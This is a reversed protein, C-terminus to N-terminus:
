APVALPVLPDVRIEPKTAAKLLEATQYDILTKLQAPERVWVSQMPVKNSKIGGQEIGCAVHAEYGIHLAQLAREYWPRAIKHYKDAPNMFEAEFLGVARWFYEVAHPPYVGGNGAAAYDALNVLDRLILVKGLRRQPFREKDRLLLPFNRHVMKNRRIGEVLYGTHALQVADLQLAPTIDGNADGMQPQEHICGYFQIDPRRKFIRCPTDAHMPLDLQLHNQYLALGVYIESELFARLAHAGAVVEDTDIWMFWDGTAAALVENRSGSFGDTHQQVSTVDIVRVKRIGEVIAKTTDQSGTDGVLIEDAVPWISDICRLIDHEANLAIIGVTLRKRPRTTLRRHAYDRPGALAASTVYWILWHGCSSGAPSHNAWEMRHFQIDKKKGFVAILDDSCFHHVHGTRYPQDRGQFEGLPGHPCTYIVQAGHVCVQELGDVLTRCESVHEIFEGVWLGDFVRGTRAAYDEWWSSFSRTDFDWVPACIFEIRDAVGYDVAAALGADINPHSYDIATVRIEPYAKAIAIAYAGNGCAVDLVHTRGEFRAVVARIRGNAPSEIEMRPDLAREAYQEPTHDKGAIMFDCREIAAVDGLEEAVGRAAMHDDYHLLQALVGAKQSEYRERFTRAIWQEWEGAIAAYTYGKVHERGLRQIRRYDFTQKACGDLMEVVASVSLAEYEPSMAQGSILFGHPVTESLAGKYSGVFPTGNAQAEIAAICSTEAFDSVGPYWMVASEAIARYLEGKGLEGLYEIGGVLANVEAVKRDFMKCVEGWGSVDYMSNYRCVKLVANPRKERLAPWMALLPGLGREPRSIHIIQNPNKVIDSPVHGPDFGNRTAWGYPTLEPLVDEWQVRHFESVYVLKDIAYAAAMVANKYQDNNLLDQNWLVRLRAPVNAHFVGPHRLACFVDWEIVLSVDKLSEAHHWVVGWKDTGACAEDLKTAFIHVQHGRSQLARALGLCASESGGLSKTGNIEGSGFPVSDVYFAITFTM